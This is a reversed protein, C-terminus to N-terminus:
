KIIVFKGQQVDGSDLDKVTFLYLGSSIGLGGNSLLDWSHEGGPLIRNDASFNDYWRIDGIYESSEHRFEDVVEGAATYIRIESRPPLNYFNLRRTRATTGDWAAGVRYPNPYVGVTRELGSQAPTGPFVRMATAVKSSEFSPLGADVDGEDFATISFLYQWGNLLDPAEFRYWYQTTDDPFVVPENLAVDSFGNNYGTRNGPTDYQAILSAASLIDGGRDDGPNSRYLRYGEFDQFGTVPDISREATKDWYLVTRPTTSSEGDYEFEVRMRPSRPPEPIVYRDLVGNGNVDEGPDLVGNFNSDEGSYTRRAWLVNNILNVRSEATDIPKGSPGQFDDPKTAAVLAFTVQLTDGPAVTAFPGIPTLGIWNGASIVGDTRLRENWDTRATEYETESVFNAPNPYPLAMRQYKLNDTLPRSLEASGGAFSWWRPNVTPPAYGDRIYEDALSPHFFRRRGTAPDNWEAGLIVISGYTNITEETGGANFAYSTLLSDIFGLGAKNFFPSGSDTTTNINRVVLDHYMGVYVSDWAAESVNVIDFNLIVFYEAFAFNWAHTTMTVSAGLRGSPDPMPISTGPVFALTDVFSGVFDQHSTALTSFADREPLTSLERLTSSQAFEYGSRGPSYGSPDTQAGTRVTVVGDSRIAGIWLGSEFLHEVGSDIPYEFSPPGTPNNRVNSKGVFGANTVTVGVNGIDVVAEEFPANQGFAAQPAACLLLM